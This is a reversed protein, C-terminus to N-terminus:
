SFGRKAMDSWPLEDDEDGDEFLVHATRNIVSISVVTADYWEGQHPGTECWKARVKDGVHFENGSGSDSSDGEWESENDGGSVSVNASVTDNVADYKRVREGGRGRGCGSSRGGRGRRGRGRARGGRGRRGRGRGRSGTVSGRGRGGGNASGRGRGGRGEGHERGAALDEQM